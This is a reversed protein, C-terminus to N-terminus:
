SRVQTRLSNPRPLEGASFGDKRGKTMTEKRISHGEIRQGNPSTKTSSPSSSFLNQGRADRIDVKGLQSREEASLIATQLSLLLWSPM